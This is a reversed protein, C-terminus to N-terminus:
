GENHIPQRKRGGQRAIEPGIPAPQRNTRSVRSSRADLLANLAATMVPPCVANGLMRIRDRRTGHNLKFDVPFGMARQLEPIQLMRLTLEGGERSVLAFRDLTTVTRLPRDLPQWGGAGDSGYYVVLFDDREGLELLAREIRKLTGSALPRKRGRIPRAPFVGTPALVSRATARPSPSAPLVEPPLRERSCLVFMRRRKQPVGFDNADLLRTGVKYGACRLTTLLDNWGVWRRMRSVNELVIYAPEWEEVFPM